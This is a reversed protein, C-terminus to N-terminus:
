FKVQEYSCKIVKNFHDRKGHGTVYPLEFCPEQLIKQYDYEENSDCEDACIPDAGIYQLDVFELSLKISVFIIVNSEILLHPKRM